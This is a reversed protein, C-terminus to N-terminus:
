NEKLGKDVNNIIHKGLDTHATITSGETPFLYIYNTGNNWKKKQGNINKSSHKNEYPGVFVHYM